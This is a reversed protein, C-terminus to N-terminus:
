PWQGRVEGRRNAVRDTVRDAVRAPRGHRHGGTVVELQHKHEAGQDRETREGDVHIQGSQRTQTRVQTGALRGDLGRDGAHEDAETDPLEDDPRQGVRDSAPTRQDDADRGM